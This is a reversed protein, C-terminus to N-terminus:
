GNLFKAVIATTEQSAVVPIIDFEVLDHWQLTWEQFLRLDDCEMLQFCREGNASVWSDIYTLGEPMLREREQFRRYVAQTQGRKFREVVMFLM